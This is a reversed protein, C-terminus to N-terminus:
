RKWLKKPEWGSLLIANIITTITDLWERVGKDILISDDINNINDYIYHIAHYADAVVYALWCVPLLMVLYIRWGKIYVNDINYCKKTVYLYFIYGISINLTVINTIYAAVLFAVPNM